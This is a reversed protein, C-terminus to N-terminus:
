SDDDTNELLQKVANVGAEAVRHDQEPSGSACGVAGITAGGVKIAVGGGIIVVRGGLCSNAGFGPNGPLCNQALEITDARIGAATFAKHIAIEISHIKAKDMRLFGMLQGACDVVAINMDIGIKEAERTSAELIVRTDSLDL